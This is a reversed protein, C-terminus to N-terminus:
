HHDPVLFIAFPLYPPHPFCQSPLFTSRCLQLCKCPHMPQWSTTAIANTGVTTVLSLLFTCFLLLWPSFQVPLLLCVSLLGGFRASLFCFFLCAVMYRGTSSLLGHCVQLPRPTERVPFTPPALMSLRVLPPLSCKPISWQRRHNRYLSVPLMSNVLLLFWTPLAHTSSAMSTLPLAITPCSVSVGIAGSTCFVMSISANTVLVVPAALRPITRPSFPVFPRVRHLTRTRATAAAVAMVVLTPERTKPRPEPNPLPLPKIKKRRRSFSPKPQLKPLLMPLNPVSSLLHHHCLLRLRLFLRHHLLLRNLLFAPDVVMAGNSNLLKMMLANSSNLPSMVQLSLGQSYSTDLVVVFQASAVASPWVLGRHSFLVLRSQSLLPHKIRSTLSCSKQRLM